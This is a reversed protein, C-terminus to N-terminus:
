YTVRFDTILARITTEEGERVRFSWDAGKAARTKSIARLTEDLYVRTKNAKHQVRVTSVTDLALHGTWGDDASFYDFNEDYEVIRIKRGRPDPM